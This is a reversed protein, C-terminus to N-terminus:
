ADLNAAGTDWWVTLRGLDIDAEAGARWAVGAFFAVVTGNCAASQDKTGGSTVLTMRRRRYDLVVKYGKLLATAWSARSASNLRKTPPITYM